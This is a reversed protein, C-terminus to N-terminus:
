PKQGTTIVNFSNYIYSFIMYIGGVHDASFFHFVFVDNTFLFKTTRLLFPFCLRYKNFICHDLSFLLFRLRCKYFFHLPECFFLPFSSSMQLYFICHEASFTSFSSSIPLFFHRRGKGSKRRVVANKVVTTKM